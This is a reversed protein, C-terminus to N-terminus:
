GPQAVPGLVLTMAVRLHENELNLFSFRLCRFDRLQKHVHSEVAM